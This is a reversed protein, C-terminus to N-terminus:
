SGIAPAITGVVAGEIESETTVVMSEVGVKAVGEFTEMFTIYDNTGVLTSDRVIGLDLTGGDLFLFTGESFIFWKFSSPFDVLAGPTQAAFIGDMHWSVRVNRASLFASITADAYALGTDGPLGQALDERMADLVWDPAVVRLGTTRPIRHRSRYAAAAKGIALLFDRAVGLKASSTVATSLGEMKTLLNLEAFRAFQVLALENNRAVLEPFARSMLNGFELQLTVADAVATLEDACTVKLRKKVEGTGGPTTPGEPDYAADHAATWLGVAGALDGLVPPAVYRIGGRAASFHALADRVPRAASGLGYIDYRVELPACYGGSAVLAQEGTVEKIKASNGEVDGGYLMRDEPFSATITAVSHRQGDGGHARRTANIMAIMANSVDDVTKLEAGASFGQIDAGAVVSTTASAVLAEEQPAETEVASAAMATEEEPTNTPTEAEASATVAEAEAKDESKAEEAPPAEEPKTEETKPEEAPVEAPPEEKPAEPEAAPPEEVPATEAAPTEVPAAEPTSAAEAPAAAPAEAVPEVTPVEVPAAEATATSAVLTDRRESLTRAADFLEKMEEVNGATDAEQFADYASARLAELESLSLEDLKELGNRISEIM